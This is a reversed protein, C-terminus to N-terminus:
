QFIEIITTIDNVSEQFYRDIGKVYKCRALFFVQSSVIHWEHVFFKNISVSFQSVWSVLKKCISCLIISDTVVLSMIERYIKQSFSFFSFSTISTRSYLLIEETLCPLIKQFTININTSSSLTIVLSSSFALNSFASKELTTFCKFIGYSLSILKENSDMEWGAKFATISNRLCGLTDAILFANLGCLKLKEFTFTLSIEFSITLNPLPFVTCVM